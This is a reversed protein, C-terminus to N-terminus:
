IDGGVNAAVGPANGAYTFVQFDVGGAAPLYWGDQGTLTTGGSSGTYTPAEFGTSFQASALASAAILVAFWAIRKM